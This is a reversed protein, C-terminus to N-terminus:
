LAELWMRDHWAASVSTRVPYGLLMAKGETLLLWADYFWPPVRVCPTPSPATRLLALMVIRLPFSPTGTLGCIADGKTFRAFVIGDETGLLPPALVDLGSVPDLIRRARFLSRYAAEEADEVETM